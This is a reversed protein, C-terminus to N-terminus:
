LVKWSKKLWNALKKATKGFLFLALFLQWQALSVRVHNNSAALGFDAPEIGANSFFNFESTKEALGDFDPVHKL